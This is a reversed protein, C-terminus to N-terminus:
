RHYIYGTSHNATIDSMEKRLFYQPSNNFMSDKRILPRFYGTIIYTSTLELLYSSTGAGVVVVGGSDASVGVSRAGTFGLLM